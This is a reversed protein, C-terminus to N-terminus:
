GGSRRTAWVAFATWGAAVVAAVVWLWRLSGAPNSLVLLVAVVLVAGALPPTRLLQGLTDPGPYTVFVVVAVVLLFGSLAALFLATIGYRAPLVFSGLVGVAVGVALGVLLKRRRPSWTPRSEPPPSWPAM